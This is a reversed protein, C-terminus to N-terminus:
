GPLPLHIEILTEVIALVVLLRLMVQFELNLPRLAPFTQGDAM